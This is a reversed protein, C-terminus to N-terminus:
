REDIWFTDVAYGLFGPKEPTKVRRWMALWQYPQHFLPIFYDGTMVLRDLARAAATHQEPTRAELLKNLALDILPDSVGAFNQSGRSAAFRSSWRVLQDVGPSLSASWSHLVLDFDFERKAGEYLAKDVNRVELAVGLGRLQERLHLLLRDERRDRSLATIQLPEGTLPNVFVGDRYQYGAELLLRRATLLQERSNGAGDTQPQAVRGEIVDLPPFMGAGAYIEREVADAPRLYASLPSGQFLSNARQYSGYFYKQNVWEADFMVNLARRVKPNQFLPRRTNLVIGEVNRPAQLPAEVKVIRGQNVAPFDYVRAPQAWRSADHEEVFDCQDAKFAQFVATEDRFYEHKILDVNHRGRNVPLDRGWYESNRRYSVVSPPKVDEVKYPGSGLVPKALIDQVSLGDYHHKPLVLLNYGVWGATEWPSDKKLRIIFSKSDIKEIASISSFLEKNRPHGERLILDHSFIVDDATVPQGDSFVAADHLRYRIDLRDASVVVSEALVGYFAYPEDAGKFTLREFVYDAAGRDSNQNKFFFPFLSDFSGRFCRNLRGGKPANPNVYDFHKFDAPYKPTGFLAVAHSDSLVANVSSLYFLSVSIFFYFRRRM